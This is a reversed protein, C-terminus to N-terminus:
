KKGLGFKIGGGVPKKGLGFSLGTPKPVAAPAPEPTLSTNVEPTSWGGQVAAGGATTWGGGSEAMSPQAWGGNGASPKALEDTATAWGGPAPESPTTWGGGGGGVAVPTVKTETTATSASIGGGARKAAAEQMKKLEREERKREKERQKDKDTKAAGSLIPNEYCTLDAVEFDDMVGHEAMGEVMGSVKKHHHDYSNLHVEYEAIKTYQKDCLECYFPRNVEVLERRIEEKKMAGAERQARKEATEELMRESDLAKRKATSEAHYQEEEEQKGVGLSDSKIDIRIPTTR